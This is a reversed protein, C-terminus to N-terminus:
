QGLAAICAERVAWLVEASAGIRAAEEAMRERHRAPKYRDVQAPTIREGSVVPLRRAPGPATLDLWTEGHRLVCHAELLETLGHARLVPGVAPDTEGSMRYFLLWLELGAGAEESLEALFAHKSSCTGKGEILVLAPDDRRLNRGYPLGQVWGAAQRLTVLGASACLMTLPGASRLPAAPVQAISRSLELVESTPAGTNTPSDTNM